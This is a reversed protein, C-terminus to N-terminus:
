VLQITKTGMPDLFPNITKNRGKVMLRGCTGCYLNKDFKPNRLIYELINTTNDWEQLGHPGMKAWGAQLEKPIGRYLPICVHFEIKKKKKLVEVKTEKIKRKKTGSVKHFDKKPLPPLM